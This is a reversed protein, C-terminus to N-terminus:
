YQCSNEETEEKRLCSNCKDIKTILDSEINHM